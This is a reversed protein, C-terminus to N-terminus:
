TDAGLEKLLSDDMAAPIQASVGSTAVKQEAATKALAM